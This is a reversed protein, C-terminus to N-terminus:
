LADSIAFSIPFFSAISQKCDSFELDSTFGNNKYISRYFDGM